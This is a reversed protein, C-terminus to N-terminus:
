NILDPAFDEIELQLEEDSLNGYAELLKETAFIVLTDMDMSDVVRKALEIELDDRNMERDKRLVPDLVPGILIALNKTGQLM